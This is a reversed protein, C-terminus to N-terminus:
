LLILFSETGQGKLPKKNFFIRRYYKICVCMNVYMAVYTLVASERCSAKRNSSGTRFEISEEPM